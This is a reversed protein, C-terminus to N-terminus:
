RILTFDGQIRRASIQEAGYNLTYFYLDAPASRGNFNGDWGRSLGTSQFVNQGWRNYINLELYFGPCADVGLVQFLDNIGDGNPTFANPFAPTCRCDEVAMVHVSDSLTHCYEMEIHVVYWGTSDTDFTPQESGDQWQYALAAPLSADLTISEGPCIVREQEEFVSSPLPALPPGGYTVELKPRLAPNGNDRESSAFILKQYYEPLQLRLLFGFSREPQNVMDQVLATVDIDTYDQDIRTPPPLLLENEATFAPRTNWTVVDQEWKEIIRQILMLHPRGTSSPLSHTGDSSNPLFYLSLRADQIQTGPPLRRLATFELLGWRSGPIGGWTWEMIPLFSSGYNQNYTPGFTASEQDLDWVIADNACAPAPQMALQNQAALGLAWTQACLWLTWLKTM